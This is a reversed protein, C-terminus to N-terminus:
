QNSSIRRFEVNRVRGTNESLLFGIVSNDARRQFLFYNGYGTFGDAITPELPAAAVKPTLVTLVGDRIAFEYTADLERNGYRGVYDNLNKPQALEVRSFTRPPANNEAIEVSGSSPSFMAKFLENSTSFSLPGTALLVREGPIGLLNGILQGNRVKFAWIGSTSRDRYSGELRNLTGPSVFVQRVPIASPEGLYINGISRALPDTSITSLNCLCIISTHYEPYRAIRTRFGFDNGGHYIEMGHGSPAIYLGFAYNLKTGDRLQGTTLLLNHLSAGGLKEAYYEEDWLALDDLTTFLGGDGVEAFSVKVASFRPGWVGTGAPEYGSAQRDFIESPSDEFHTHHMGLPEFINKDAFERLSMGAVREVVIGLLFYNSNNYSFQTGPPFDLAKQRLLLDLYDRRTPAAPTHFDSLDETLSIYDRIGSTHYVLDRVLIRDGYNPLEPLYKHVDDDLSLKGKTILLGISAATFQKSMSALYFVTDPGIPTQQEVDASGYGRRLLFEGNRLVGVACGPSRPTRWSAFLDDVKAAREDRDRNSCGFLLASLSLLILKTTVKM